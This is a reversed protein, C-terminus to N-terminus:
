GRLIVDRLWPWYEDKVWQRLAQLIHVIQYVGRASSTSGVAVKQWFLTQEGELTTFNLYWEHGQIIIGPIFPPLKTSGHAKEGGETEAQAEATLREALCRLFSWHAMQWIGLQLKASDFGESPKVTGISFAIPKKELPVFDTFNLIGDPLTDRFTM